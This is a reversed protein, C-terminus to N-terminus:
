APHLDGNSNFLFASETAVTILLAPWAHKLPAPVDSRWYEVNALVVVKVTRNAQLVLM